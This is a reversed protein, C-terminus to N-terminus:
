LSIRRALAKKECLMKQDFKGLTQKKTLTKIEGSIFFNHWALLHFRSGEAVTAVFIGM